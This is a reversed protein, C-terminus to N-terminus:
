PENFPVIKGERNTVVCNRGLEKAKYMAQDASKLIAKEDNNLVTLDAVGFTATATFRTNEETVFNIAQFKRRIRNASIAAEFAPIHPFLICFEDGGYRAGIDVNRLEGLMTEAFAAIVSDGIKHGYSDNVAKFNDLDCLCVSLPFNYRKASEITAVLKELFYRRNFLGSLHDHVAEYRLKEEAEKRETIDEIVGDIWKIKGADDFIIQASCSAWFPTHDKKKLALEWNRVHGKRLLEELFRKRGEPEQYLDSVSNKMFEKTSRYGFMKVIAPNAELFMGHPGGTTRYIGINVNNILTRFKEESTKLKDEAKKRMTIDNGISLLEVIEDNENLVAKNTWSIWVREGNKLMNENESNKYLEPASMINSMIESLTKGSSDTKPVITGIINRGIIEEETFGFFEQSYENFFTINGKTDLRLIISNANEVLERYKTESRRLSVEIQGAQIVQATVHALGELLVVEDGTIEKKSFFALVGIAKGSPSLLRYGAFSKFGTKNKGKSGSEPPLYSVIMKDEKGVALQAIVGDSDLPIRNLQRSRRRPSGSLLHLCQSEGSDRDPCKLIICEPKCHYSKRIVWVQCCDIGFIERTRHTISDLKKELSVPSILTKQLLNVEKLYNIAALNEKESLKCKNLEQELNKM